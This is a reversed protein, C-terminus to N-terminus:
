EDHFIGASWRVATEGDAALLVIFGFNQFQLHRCHVGILEGRALWMETWNRPRQAQVIRKDLDPHFDSRLFAVVDALNRDAHRPTIYTPEKHPGRDPGSVYVVSGVAPNLDSLRAVLAKLEVGYLRFCESLPLRTADLSLQEGGVAIARGLHDAAREQPKLWPPIGSAGVAALLLEDPLRRPLSPLERKLLVHGLEHGITTRLRYPPQRANLFIWNNAPGTGFSISVGALRTPMNSRLIISAMGRARDTMSELDLRRAGLEFRVGSRLTRALEERFQRACPTGVM